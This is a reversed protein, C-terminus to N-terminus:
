RRRKARRGGSEALYIVFTGKPIVGSDGFTHLHIREGGNVPIGYGAPFTLSINESSNGGGTTLFAQRILVEIISGRADNIEIQHTSLFSLEAYAKDDLADMGSASVHGTIAIIEGDAPVDISAVSNTFQNITGLGFIKIPTVHGSM